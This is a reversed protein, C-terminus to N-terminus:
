RGTSCAKPTSSRAIVHCHRHSACKGGIPNAGEVLGLEPARVHPMNTGGSSRLELFMRASLVKTTRAIAPM